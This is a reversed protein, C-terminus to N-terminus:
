RTIIGGAVTALLGTCRPSCTYANFGNRLPPRANKPQVQPEAAHKKTARPGHAGAPARGERRGRSRSPFGHAYSPRLMRRSIAIDYRTQQKFLQIQSWM